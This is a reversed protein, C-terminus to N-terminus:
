HNFQFAKSNLLAWVLDQAGIQRKDIPKGFSSLNNQLRILEADQARFAALITNNQMPNRKAPELLFIKVLESEAGFPQVQGPSKTLSIRFRGLTHQTGFNQVLTITLEGKDKFLAPNQIQFYASNPKGFAPSIAWGTTLNNDIANAIPFTPQNFTSKPNTLPLPTPKQGELNFTAKFENLVFNGNSSRGPGKAPLTDHPLVELLIGTWAQKDVPIKITLTEQLPNEGSALFSGDDLKTFKAKSKASATAAKINEWEAIKSYSKEWQDLRQAESKKYIELAETRRNFEEVMPQFDPEGDKLAKLGANIEPQTPPRNLVSLFLEEILKSDDKQSGLLKAILNNPDRVADGIVPGNVLSLVPGLMMSSSRECECASQRPPKGFLQFFGGGIDVSADVLQAARTGAPVGPLKTISGTARHISDFLVEAPLRRALAHSFNSEDDKNWDNTQVSLQYVRSKCILKVIHQINFDSQIFESALKELLKPNSSPNGARIDDIPEILGVGMLYAWQRNVFSRAFYPNEKSTVWHALQQRRSSNEAAKDKLAFPFQPPAVLGTREHKLEGSKSDQIVEVLPQAGEVASGGVKQGKYKQDEVRSIQAFYASLQYYQDQTWREFPHDHCKNCNFRVGLFLHTSNEAAAAPDRLIKFYSAAPNELNSGSGTLIDSAFKNYPKNTAILDRIYSYLKAAGQDGLYLKNVQLLDAWKNTWHEIYDPSGVLKDIVEDRKVKSDRKDALFTKVAESTPPLGTLDLTIRRLFETDSCLGSPLVKISQLKEYVLHDIFNNEIQPEWKFNKRDGMIIFTSAAYNGEFRALVTAEGRRLGQV